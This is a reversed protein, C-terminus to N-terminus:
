DKKEGSAVIRLKDKPLPRQRKLAEARGYADHSHGTRPYRSLHGAAAAPQGCSGERYGSQRAKRVCTPRRAVDSFHWFCVNAVHTRVQAVDFGRTALEIHITPWAPLQLM